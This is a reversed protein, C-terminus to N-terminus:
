ERLIVKLKPEPVLTNPAGLSGLAAREWAVDNEQAWPRFFVDGNFPSVVPLWKKNHAAKLWVVAGDDDTHVEAAEVSEERRIPGVDESRDNMDRSDCYRIGGFPPPVVCLYMKPEDKFADAVEHPLTGAPVSAITRAWCFVQDQTLADICAPASSLGVM